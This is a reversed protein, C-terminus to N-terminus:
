AAPIGTGSRAAGSPEPTAAGGTGGGDLAPLATDLTALIGEEVEPLLHGYLDSTVTISKHGLRRQVATLSHGASILWAAHTHRLDHIRLGPGTRGGSHQPFGLGAGRVAPVWVRTRFNRHRVATGEASTFVLDDRERNAVLPVLAECVVKPIGLTRRGARTKPDTTVMSGDTLEHLSEEITIRSALVDVNKVRLGVAEGWRCGTMLILLVLPRWREPTAAILRGAEPQTLFRMERRDLAPLDSSACPNSHMLRHIVAAALIKSLLGHANRASKPSLDEDDLYTLWQQVILPSRDLEDLRRDGLEPLIRFHLRGLESKRSSPKLSRAYGPEWAAVWQSLTMRAGVHDLSNGRLQDARLQTMANRASTKTSYGGPPSVTVQQSGVRDRIRWTKGHKEVWM